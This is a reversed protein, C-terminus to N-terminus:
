GLLMTVDQLNSKELSDLLHKLITVERAHYLPQYRMAALGIMIAALDIM